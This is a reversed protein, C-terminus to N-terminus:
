LYKNHIQPLKLAEVDLESSNIRTDQEILKRIEDIKM